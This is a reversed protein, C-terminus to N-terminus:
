KSWNVKGSTCTFLLEHPRKEETDEKYGGPCVDSAENYCAAMRGCTTSFWQEGHRVIKQAGGTTSCGATAIVVIAVLLPKIM